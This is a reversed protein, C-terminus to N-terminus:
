AVNVGVILSNFLVIEPTVQFKRQSNLLIQAVLLSVEDSQFATGNPDPPADVNQRRPSSVPSVEIAGTQKATEVSGSPVRRTRNRVLPQEDIDEAEDQISSSGAELKPQSSAVKDLSGFGQRCFNFFGRILFCM